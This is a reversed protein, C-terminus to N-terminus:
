HYLRFSVEVNISVAVPESGKRAPHFKWSKLEDVAKEDLGYGLPSVVKIDQPRGSNDVILQLVVIGQIHQERAEVSYEPDPSFIARPPSIGPGIKIVKDSQGNAASTAEAPSTSPPLNFLPALQPSVRCTSSNQAGFCRKWYDPVLDALRDPPSLFVGDLVSHAANLTIQRTDFHAAITVQRESPM